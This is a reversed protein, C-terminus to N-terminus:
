ALQQVMTNFIRIRNQQFPNRISLFRCGVPLSGSQNWWGGTCNAGSAYTQAMLRNNMDLDSASSLPALAGSDTSVSWQCTLVGAGTLTLNLDICMSFISVSSATPDTTRGLWSIAGPTPQVVTTGDCLLGNVAINTTGDTFLWYTGSSYMKLNASRVNSWGVFRNGATGAYGVGNSLGINFSTKPNAFVGVVTEANPTGNSSVLNTYSGLIGIRVRLWNLPLNTERLLEMGPELIVCKNNGGTLTKTYITANAM